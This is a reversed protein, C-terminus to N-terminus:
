KSAEQERLVDIRAQRYSDLKKQDYSIFKTSGDVVVAASSTGWVVFVREEPTKPKPKDLQACLSEGLMRAEDENCGCEDVLHTSLRLIWAADREEKRVWEPAGDPITDGTPADLKALLGRRYIEAHREAEEEGDFQMIVEGDVRVFVRESAGMREVTVSM